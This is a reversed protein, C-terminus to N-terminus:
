ICISNFIVIEAGGNAFFAKMEDYDSEGSYRKTLKRETQAM